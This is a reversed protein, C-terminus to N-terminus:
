FRFTSAIEQEATAYAQGAQNMLRGIGDLADKLRTAATHWEAWLHQFQQQAQGAWDSGLPALTATLAALQRDIEASGRVVQGSLADLQEPTVRIGTSM